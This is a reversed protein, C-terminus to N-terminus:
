SPVLKTGIPAQSAGLQCWSSVLKTGIPELRYRIKGLQYSIPVLNMCQYGTPVLHIDVQYWNSVITTFTPVLAFGIIYWDFSSPVCHALCKYAVHKCYGSSPPMAAPRSILSDGLLMVWTGCFHLGLVEVAFLRRQPPQQNFAYKLLTCTAWIM